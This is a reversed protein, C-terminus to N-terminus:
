ARTTEVIKVIQNYHRVLEKFSERRGEGRFQGIEHLNLAIFHEIEFTGIRDGLRKDTALGDATAMREPVTILCTQREQEFEDPM